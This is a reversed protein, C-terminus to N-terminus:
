PSAPAAPAAVHGAGPRAGPAGAPPASGAPAAGAPAAAAAAVAAGSAARRDRTTAAADPAASSGLGLEAQIRGWVADPPQLLELGQTSRGLQATRTLEALESSCESCAILHGRADADPTMESLAILALTEADIHTM